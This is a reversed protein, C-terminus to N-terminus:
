NSNSSQRKKDLYRQLIIQAADADIHEKLIKKEQRASRSNDGYERLRAEHSSFREDIEFVPIDQRLRDVLEKRPAELSNDQGDSTTSAGILVEGISESDIIELLTEYFRGDNQIVRFPFAISESEDSIALGVRKTGYDIGLIRM